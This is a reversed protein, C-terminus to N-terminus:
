RDRDERLMDLTSMAGPPQPNRERINAIEELARRRQAIIEDNELAQDVLEVLEAGFSRRRSKARKKVREHLSEPFNRVYVTPM